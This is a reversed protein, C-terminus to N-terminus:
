RCGQHVTRPAIPYTPTSLLSRSPFHRPRLSFFCARSVSHSILLLPCSPPLLPSSLLRSLLPFSPSLFFPSVATYLRLSSSSLAPPLSIRVFQFATLGFAASTDNTAFLFSSRHKALLAPFFVLRARCQNDSSRLVRQTGLM